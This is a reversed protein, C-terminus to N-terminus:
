PLIVSFRKLFDQEKKKLVCTFNVFYKSFKSIVCMKEASSFFHQRLFATLKDSEAVDAFLM